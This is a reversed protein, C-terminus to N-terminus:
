WALYEVRDRGGVAGGDITKMYARIIGDVPRPLASGPGASLSEMQPSMVVDM